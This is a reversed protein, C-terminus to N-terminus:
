ECALRSKMSKSFWGDLCEGCTCTEVADEDEEGVDVEDGEEVAYEDKEKEVADEDKEKEGSADDEESDDDEPDVDFVWQTWYPGLKERPLGLKERVLGFDMDNECWPYGLRTLREGWEAEAEQFAKDSQYLTGDPSKEFAYDIMADLGFEVKGGSSFYAQVYRSLRSPKKKTKKGGKGDEKFKVPPKLFKDLVKMIDPVTPMVASIEESEKQSARKIFNSIVELVLIYGHYFEPTMMPRLDKPIYRLPTETRIFTQKLIGNKLFCELIGFDSM